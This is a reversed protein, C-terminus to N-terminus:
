VLRHLHFLHTVLHFSHFVLHARKGEYQWLFSIHLSAFPPYVAMNRRGLDLRFFLSYYFFSMIGMSFSFFLFFFVEEEKYQVYSMSKQVGFRRDDCTFGGVWMGRM